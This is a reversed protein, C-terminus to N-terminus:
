GVLQKTFKNIWDPNIQAQGKEPESVSDDGLLDDIVQEDVAFEMTDEEGSDYPAVAVIHSPLTQRRPVKARAPEASNSLEGESLLIDHDM